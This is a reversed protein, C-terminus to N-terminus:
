VVKGPSLAIKTANMKKKGAAKPCKSPNKRAADLKRKWMVKTFEDTGPVARPGYAVGVLEFIHNLRGGNRVHMLCADHEAKTYSGVIGEAELEVGVLFQVDNENDDKHVTAFKPLLVKL